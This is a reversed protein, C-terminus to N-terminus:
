SIELLDLGRRIEKMNVIESRRELKNKTERVVM